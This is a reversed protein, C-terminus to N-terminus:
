PFSKNIYNIGLTELVIVAHFRLVQHYVRWKSPWVRKFFALILTTANDMGCQNLPCFSTRFPGNFMPKQLVQTGWLWIPVMIYYITIRCMWDFIWYHTNIFWPKSFFLKLIIPYWCSDVIRILGGCNVMEHCLNLMSKVMKFPWSRAPPCHLEWPPPPIDLHM